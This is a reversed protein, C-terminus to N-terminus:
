KVNKMQITNILIKMFVMWILQINFLLKPIICYKLDASERINLLQYKAERTNKAYLYM